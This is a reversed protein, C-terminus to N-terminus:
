VVGKRQVSWVVGGEGWVCWMCVGEEVCVVGCWNIARGWVVGRM